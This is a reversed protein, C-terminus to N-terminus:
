DSCLLDAVGRYNLATTHDYFAATVAPSSHGMIKSVGYLDAGRELVHTAFSHRLCHFTLEKPLDAKNMYKRFMDQLSRSMYQGFGRDKQLLYCEMM